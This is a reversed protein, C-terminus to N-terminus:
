HKGHNVFGPKAQRTVCWFEVAAPIITLAHHYVTKEPLKDVPFWGGTKGVKGEDELEVLYIVSLFPGRAENPNPFNKVFTLKSFGSEVGFEGKALRQGVVKEIDMDEDRAAKGEGVRWAAGPCHWQKPYATDTPSRQRLYVELQGGRERLWVAEMAITWTLRTLADFLPTGYGGPSLCKLVEAVAAKEDDTRQGQPNTLMAGVLNLAKGIDM